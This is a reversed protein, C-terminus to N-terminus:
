RIARAILLQCCHHTRTCLLCLVPLVCSMTSNGMRFLCWRAVALGRTVTHMWSFGFFTELSWRASSVLRLSLSLSVAIIQEGGGDQGQRIVLSPFRSVTAWNRQQHPSLTRRPCASLLLLTRCCGDRGSRYWGRNVVLDKWKKDHFIKISHGSQIGRVVHRATVLYQKSARDITFGTGTSGNWRIHFTRHIVNTTIMMAGSTLPFSDDLAVLVLLVCSRCLLM